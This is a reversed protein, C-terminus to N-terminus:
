EHVCTFVGNRRHLLAFRQALNFTVPIHMLGRYLRCIALFSCFFFQRREYFLLNLSFTCFHPHAHPSRTRFHFRAISLYTHIAKLLVSIILGDHMLEPLPLTHSHFLFPLFFLVFHAAPFFELASSIRRCPM